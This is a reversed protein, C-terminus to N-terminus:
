SIYLGSFKSPAGPCEFNALYDFSAFRLCFCELLEVILLFFVQLSHSFTREILSGM